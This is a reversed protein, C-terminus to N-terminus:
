MYYVGNVKIVSPDGGYGIQMDHSRLKGSPDILKYGTSDDTVIRVPKSFGKSFDSCETYYVNDSSSTEPLGAGYWLKIKKDESDYFGSASYAGWKTYLVNGLYESYVDTGSIKTSRKVAPAASEARISFLQTTVTSRVSIDAIVQEFRIFEIKNKDSGAIKSIDIEATQRVGSKGSYSFLQKVAGGHNKWLINYSVDKGDSSTSNRDIFLKEYDSLDLYNEYNKPYMGYENIEEEEGLAPIYMLYDAIVRGTGSQNKAGYVTFYNCDDASDADFWESTAKYKLDDSGDNYPTYSYVPADYAFSRAHWSSGDTKNYRSYPLEAGYKFNAIELRLPLDGTYGYSDDFEINGIGAPPLNEGDSVPAPGNCGSNFFAVCTVIMFIIFGKKM